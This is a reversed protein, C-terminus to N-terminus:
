SCVERYGRAVRLLFSALKKKNIRYRETFGLDNFMTMSASM